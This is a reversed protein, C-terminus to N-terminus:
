HGFLPCRGHRFHDYPDFKSLVCGCVYCFHTRCLCTMHNCGEKKQVGNGCVPCQKLLGSDVLNRMEEDAKEQEAFKACSISADHGKRCQVCWVANCLLCTWDVEGRQVFTLGQCDHTNCARADPSSSSWIRLSAALYSTFQKERLSARVYFEPWTNCEGSDQKGSALCGFCRVPLINADVQSMIWNQKCDLCAHHDCPIARLLGVPVQFTDQCIACEVDHFFDNALTLSENSLCFGAPPTPAASSSSHATGAGSNSQLHDFCVKPIFGCRNGVRGFIFPITPVSGHRCDYVVSGKEVTRWPLPFAELGWQSLLAPSFDSSVLLTRTIHFSGMTSECLRDCFQSIHQADVSKASKTINRSAKIVTKHKKGIKHDEWATPGNVWINCHDCYSAGVENQAM